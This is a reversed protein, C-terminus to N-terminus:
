ANEEYPLWYILSQITLSRPEAELLMGLSYFYPNM